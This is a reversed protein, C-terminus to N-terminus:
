VGRAQRAGVADEHQRLYEAKLAGAGSIFEDGINELAAMNVQYQKPFRCFERAMRVLGAPCLFAHTNRGKEGMSPVTEDFLQEGVEVGFLERVADNSLQIFYPIRVVQYGLDSYIRCNEADKKIKLPDTYHQIGDFEVILMKADSRYDPRIKLRRGNYERGISKDHIWDDVDPFIVELYKDLGTRCVGTDADRGADLAAATTERLFGWERKGANM